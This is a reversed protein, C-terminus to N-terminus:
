IPIGDELYLLDKIRVGETLHIIGKEVEYDKVTRPVLRKKAYRFTYNWEGTKESQGNTEHPPFNHMWNWKVIWLERERVFNELQSINKTEIDKVKSDLKYTGLSWYANKQPHDKPYALQHNQVTWVIGYNEGELCFKVESVCFTGILDIGPSLNRKMGLVKASWEENAQSMLGNFQRADM